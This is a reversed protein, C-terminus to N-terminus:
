TLFTNTLITNYKLIRQLPLVKKAYICSPFHNKQSFFARPTLRSLQVPPTHPIGIPLRRLLLLAMRIIATFICDFPVVSVGLCCIVPPLCGARFCRLYVAARFFFLPYWRPSSASRAPRSQRDALIPRICSVIGSAGCALLPM